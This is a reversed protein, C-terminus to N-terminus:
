KNKSMRRIRNVCEWAKYLNASLNVIKASLLEQEQQKCHSDLIYLKRKKQFTEAIKSMGSCQGLLQIRIKGGVRNYNVEKNTTDFM